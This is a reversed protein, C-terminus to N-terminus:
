LDLSVHLLRFQLFILILILFLSAIAASGDVAAHGPGQEMRRNEHDFVVERRSDSYRTDRLLFKRISHLPGGNDDYMEDCVVGYSVYVHSNWQLLLARKDRLTGVLMGSNIAAPEFYEATVMIPRGDSLLHRGQLKSVVDNLSMPNAKEASDGLASDAGCCVSRDHLVTDLSTLLVDSPDHSRAMLAPLGGVRTEQYPYSQALCASVLCSAVLFRVFCSVASARTRLRIV